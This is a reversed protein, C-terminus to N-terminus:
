FYYNMRDIIEYDEIIIQPTVSNYYRNIECKGLINLVVCGTESFLTEFEKESSKFKICAIGNTLEIKIAPNPKDKAMLTLMDKTVKVNEIIILAENINQGWLSKMSGIDFIDQPNITSAQYIFDVKYSPSFTINKLVEDSWTIFNDIDEDYIGAGWANPHGESLFFFGSDHCFKKFDKLKSREYGRASGMWAPKGEYTTLTLMLVPRQYKAMFKNAILGRLTPDINFESQLKFILIKHQLLDYKEIMSELAEVAADQTRTQRNKVNTCTRVAQEIITETQGSSGRKTSPVLNYAEWDLMSRFLLLKETQSGVRMVANILPVIYFAVGIPTLENGISYANHEAMGKIFPNRLHKIGQSVLYRTEFSRLDMMDGVLGLM